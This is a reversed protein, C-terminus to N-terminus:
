EDDTVETEILSNDGAVKARIKMEIEEAIEPNLKILANKVMSEVMVDSLERELDDPSVYTWGKNKLSTIFYKSYRSSGINTLLWFSLFCKYM